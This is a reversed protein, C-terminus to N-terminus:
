ERGHGSTPAPPEWPHAPDKLPPYFQSGDLKENAWQRLCAISCFDYQHKSDFVTMSVKWWCDWKDADYNTHYEGSGEFEEEGCNDCVVVYKTSM